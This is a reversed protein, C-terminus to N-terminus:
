SSLKASVREEMLSNVQNILSSGLFAHREQPTLELRDAIDALILGVSAEVDLLNKGEATKQWERRFGALSQVIQARDSLRHDKLDALPLQLTM